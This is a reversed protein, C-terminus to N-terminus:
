RLALTICRQLEAKVFGERAARVRRFTQDNEASVEAQLINGM